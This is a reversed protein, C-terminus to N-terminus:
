IMVGAFSRLTVAAITAGMTPNRRFRFCLLVTSSNAVTAQSIRGGAGKMTLLDFAKFHRRLHPCSLGVDCFSRFNLASCAGHTAWRCPGCSVIRSVSGPHRSLMMPIGVFQWVSILAQTILATNELGLWPQYLQPLGVLTLIDKSIGWLPNLLIQWIFGVLVFSLITPLFIATRFLPKLRTAHSTLLVALLLGIPNQVLMHVIFFIFNNKIAGQLRPAWLPDTLLRQYNAIGVFEENRRSAVRAAQAEESTQETAKPPM